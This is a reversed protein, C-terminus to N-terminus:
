RKRVRRSASQARVRRHEGAMVAPGLARRAAAETLSAAQDLVDRPVWAPYAVIRNVHRGSDTHQQHVQALQEKKLQGSMRVLAPWLRRHVFTIRSDILRCILIDPSDSLRELLAFIERGRPHAWWSGHIVEGAIVDVLRPVPGKASVLVVGQDRVFALLRRLASPSARKVAPPTM